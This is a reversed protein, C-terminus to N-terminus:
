HFGFLAVNPIDEASSHLIAIDYLLGATSLAAIFERRNM